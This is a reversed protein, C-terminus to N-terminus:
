ARAASAMMSYMVFPMSLAMHLYLVLFVLFGGSGASPASAHVLAEKGGVLAQGGPLPQHLADPLASTGRQILNRLALPRKQGRRKRMGRPPRHQQDRRRLQDGLPLRLVHLPQGAAAAGHQGRAVHLEAARGHAAFARPLAQAHQFPQGRPADLHQAGAHLRKQVAARWAGAEAAGHDLKRLAPVKRGVPEHVREDSAAVLAHGHHLPAALAGHAARDHVHKGGVGGVGEADLKEVVLDVAQAAKVADTLAADRPHLPRADGGGGLAQNGVRLSGRFPQLGRELPAHAVGHFGGRGRM